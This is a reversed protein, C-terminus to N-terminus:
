KRRAAEAKDLKEDAGGVWTEPIDFPTELLEITKIGGFDNSIIQESLKGTFADGLISYKLEQPTM